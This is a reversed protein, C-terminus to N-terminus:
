RAEVSDTPDFNFLQALEAMCRLKKIARSRRIAAGGPPWGMVSEIQAYTLPPDVSLLRLLEQLDAPLRVLASRYAASRDSREVEALVDVDVGDGSPDDTPVDSVAIFRQRRKSLSLAENRAITMMWVHFKDPERVQHLRELARLWSVQFLDEREAEGLQVGWLAKWVAGTHRRVLAEWADRGLQGGALAAEILAATPLDDGIVRERQVRDGGTNGLADPMATLGMMRPPSTPCWGDERCELAGRCTALSARRSRVRPRGGSRNDSRAHGTCGHSRWCWRM